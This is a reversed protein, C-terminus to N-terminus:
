NGRMRLLHSDHFCNDTVHRMKDASKARRAERLKPEDMFEDVFEVFEDVVSLARPVRVITLRLKDKACTV